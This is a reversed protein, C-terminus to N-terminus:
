EIDSVQPLALALIGMVTFGTGAAIPPLPLMHAPAAAVSVSAVLPPTHLLPLVPMAVIPEVPIFVPM